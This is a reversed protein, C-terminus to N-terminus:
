MSPKFLAFTAGQPDALVAFRGVKPIDMSEVYAKAGLSKAKRASADVDDVMFYVLWYTPIEPAPSAMMGGISRGGHEWETYEPSVKAGWGFLSTYFSKAKSVDKASLENWCFSGPENVVGAGIHKKPQWVAFPAGQPDVILSMRGLDMVDFPPMMLGGGLSEAKKAADDASTVCVYSLWNPPAEKNEYIGGVDKGNKQAVSYIEDNSIPTDRTTWGFVNKYFEVSKKRDPTALEIWCFTGPEHKTVQTM